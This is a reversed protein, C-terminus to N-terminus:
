AQEKEEGRQIKGKWFVKSLLCLDKKGEVSRVRADTALQAFNVIPSERNDMRTKRERLHYSITSGPVLLFNLTEWFGVLSLLIGPAPM